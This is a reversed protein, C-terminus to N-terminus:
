PSSTTTEPDVEVEMPVTWTEYGERYCTFTLRVLQDAYKQWWTDDSWHPPRTRELSFPRWDGLLLPVPAVGRGTSDAGDVTPVFRYPGWVQQAIDEATPRGATVPQRDRIDDRITVTVQDLHGLGPPGVLEARLQARDGGTVRCSVKFTPTLEAHWRGQEVKTLTTAARGSHHAARWAGWAAVAAVLTGLTSLIAVMLSM